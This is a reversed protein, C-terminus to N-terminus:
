VARGSPDVKTHGTNSISASSELLHKHAAPRTVSLCLIVTADYHVNWAAVRKGAGRPKWDIGPVTSIGSVRQEVLASQSKTSGLLV